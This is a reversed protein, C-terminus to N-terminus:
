PCSCLFKLVRVFESGKERYDAHLVAVRDVFFPNLWGTRAWSKQLNKAALAPLLMFFKAPKQANELALICIVSSKQSITM